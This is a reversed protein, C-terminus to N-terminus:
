HCNFKFIKIVILVNLNKERLIQMRNIIKYSGINKNNKYIMKSNKKNIIIKLSKKYNSNHNIMSHKYHFKFNKNLYNM